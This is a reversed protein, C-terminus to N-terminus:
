CGPMRTPAVTFPVNYVGVNYLDNPFLRVKFSQACHRWVDEQRYHRGMWTEGAFGEYM